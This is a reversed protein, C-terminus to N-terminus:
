YSFRITRAKFLPNPLSLVESLAWGNVDFTDMSNSCAQLMAVSPQETFNGLKSNSDPSPTIIRQVDQCEESEAFLEDNPTSANSDSEQLGGVSHAPACCRVELNM